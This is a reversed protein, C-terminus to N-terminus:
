YQTTPPTSQTPPLAPLNNPRNPTTNIIIIPNNVTVDPDKKDQKPTPKTISRFRPSKKSLLLYKPNIFSATDITLTGSDNKLITLRWSKDETNVFFQNGPTIEVYTGKNKEWKQGIGTIENGEFFLVDGKSNSRIVLKGNDITAVTDPSLKMHQERNIKPQKYNIVVNGGPTPNNPIPLKEQQNSNKFFLFSLILILALGAALIALPKIKEAKMKFNKNKISIYKIVDRPSKCIKYIAFLSSTTVITKFITDDIGLIDLFNM